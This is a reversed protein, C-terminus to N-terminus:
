AMRRISRRDLGTMRWRRAIRRGPKGLMGWVCDMISGDVDDLANRLCVVAELNGAIHIDRSFFMADGDMEGSVMRALQKCSGSIHADSQPLPERPVARLSPGLPDPKLQLLFPLERADILFCSRTYTGLRDFIEPFEAKIRNTMRALLPQLPLLFLEKM